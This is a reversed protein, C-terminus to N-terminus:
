DIIALALVVQTLPDSHSAALTRQLFPFLVGDARRRWSGVGLVTPAACGAMSAIRLTAVKAFRGYLSRHAEIRMGQPLCERRSRAMIEGPRLIGELTSSSRFIM